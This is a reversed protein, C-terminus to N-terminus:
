QLAYGNRQRLLLIFFPAGIVATVVGVPLEAPSILLRALVDALVLLIGGALASCVMLQRHGPGILMRLLHPVVLGVFGIVGALAVSTAVALAVVMILLRKTYSVNVGLYHAESEGLLLADLSRHSRWLILMSPVIILLGVLCRQDNAGDLGGMNWLSIRRLTENDAIFALASNGAGALATIAIGVLLMTAVSTGQDASLSGANVSSHAGSALRYVIVVALLGGLFAGLVISSLGLWANFQSGILVVAISAGLSAGSTVGIISPDALPNRFLGQMAAGSMALGAGVLWALFTRPLRLERVVPYSGMLDPDIPSQSVIISPLLSWVQFLSTDVPGVCLGLFIVMPTIVLLLPRM